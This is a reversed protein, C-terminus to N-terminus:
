RRAPSQSPRSPSSRRCMEIGTAPIAILRLATKGKHPSPYLEAESRVGEIAHQSQTWGALIARKNEFDGSPLRNEQPNDATRGLRQILRHHDPLTQFCVTYPSTIPGYESQTVSENWYAYQLVRLAQM